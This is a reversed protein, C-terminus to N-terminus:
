REPSLTIGRFVLLKDQMKQAFDVMVFLNSLVTSLVPITGYARHIATVECCRGSDDQFLAGVRRPVLSHSHRTAAAPASTEVTVTAEVCLEGHDLYADLLVEKPLPPSFMERKITKECVRQIATTLSEKASILLTLLRKMILASNQQSDIYRQQTITDEIETLSLKIKNITARLQEISLNMGKQLQVELHAQHHGGKSKPMKWDLKLKTISTNEIKATGVTMGGEMVLRIAESKAKNAKAVNAAAKLAQKSRLGAAISSIGELDDDNM